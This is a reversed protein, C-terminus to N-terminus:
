EDSGELKASVYMECDDKTKVIDENGFSTWAQWFKNPKTGSEPSRYCKDCIECTDKTRVCMTIDPM